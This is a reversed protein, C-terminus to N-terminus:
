VVRAMYRGTAMVALVSFFQGALCDDLYTCHMMPM